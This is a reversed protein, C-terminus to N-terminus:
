PGTMHSRGGVRVKASAEALQAQLRAAEEKAAAEGQRLMVVQQKLLGLSAQLASGDEDQQALMKQMQQEAAGARGLAQKHAVQEEALQQVLSDAQQQMGALEDQLSAAAAESDKLQEQLEQLPPPLLLTCPQRHAQAQPPSALFRISATARTCTCALVLELCTQAAARSHCTAQSAPSRASARVTILGQSHREREEAAMEASLAALRAEYSAKLAGMQEEFTGMADSLAGVAKDQVTRRHHLILVAANHLLVFQPGGAPCQQQAKSYLAAFATTIRPLTTCPHTWGLVM